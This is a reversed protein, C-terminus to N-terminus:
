RIRCKHPILSLPIAKDFVWRFWITSECDWGNLGQLQPYAFEFEAKGVEILGNDTLHVADYFKALKEWDITYKAIIENYYAFNRMLNLYDRESNIEVVRASKSPILVWCQDESKPSWEPACTACWALWDSCYYDNPTFTSTWLGGDPKNTTPAVKNKIPYIKVKVLREKKYTCWLQPKM